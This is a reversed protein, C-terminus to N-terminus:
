TCKTTVLGCLSFFIEECPVSVQVTAFGIIRPHRMVKNWISHIFRFTGYNSCSRKLGSRQGMNKQLYNCLLCKNSKAHMERLLLVYMFPLFLLMENLCKRLTSAFDMESWRFGIFSRNKVFIGFKQTSRKTNGVQTKAWASSIKIYNKVASRLHAIVEFSDKAFLHTEIWSNRGNM